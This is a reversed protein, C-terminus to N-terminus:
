NDNPKMFAPPIPMAVLKANKLLTKMVLEVHTLSSALAFVCVGEEVEFGEDKLYTIFTSAATVMENTTKPTRESEEPKEELKEELKEETKEELKEETKKEEPKNAEPM